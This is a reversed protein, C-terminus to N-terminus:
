LVGLFCHTIFNFSFYLVQYPLRRLDLSVLLHDHFEVVLPKLVLFHHVFQFEDFDSAEVVGHGIWELDDVIFYKLGFGLIRVSVGILYELFQVKTKQLIFM